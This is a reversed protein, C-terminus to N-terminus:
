KSFYQKKLVLLYEFLQPFYASIYYKWRWRSVYPIKFVKKLADNLGKISQNKRILLKRLSVAYSVMWRGIFKEMEPKIINWDSRSSLRNTIWNNFGGATTYFGIYDEGQIYGYNAGHITQAGLSTNIVVVGSHSCTLVTYALDGMFPTGFDPIGGIDLLIEKKVIGVSWLMYNNVQNLFFNLPFKEKSYVQKHMLPHENSLCSNTGVKARCIEAMEPTHYIVDCGGHYVGYGPFEQYLDYLTQLMEPYVPDDDTIMVIYKGEAREISKNFSRIMGLNVGNNFYKFRPDNYKEVIGRANGDPDNDSIIVEFNSFTQNQIIKIQKDLFQPRKYTSMCFSVWPSSSISTM